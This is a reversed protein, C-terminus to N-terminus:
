KFKKLLKKQATFKDKGKDSMRKKGLDSIMAGADNYTKSGHSLRSSKSSLTEDIKVRKMEKFDKHIDDFESRFRILGGQKQMRRQQKKDAKTLNLRIFNEEEYNEREKIAIDEKSQAIGKSGYGVGEADLEDPHDDYQSALDKFLRSRSAKILDRERKNERKTEQEFSVPAIRPPKYLLDKKGAAVSRGNVEKSTTSTALAEPNPKFSLIGGEELGKEQVLKDIQYKLKQELPKTKELVLRLEILNRRLDESPRIGNLKMISYLILNTSYSLLSDVRSSLLSIGKDMPLKETEAKQKLITAVEKISQIQSHM